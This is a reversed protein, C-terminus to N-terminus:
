GNKKELAQILEDTKELGRLTNSNMVDAVEELGKVVAPLEKELIQTMKEVNNSMTDMQEALNKISEETICILDRLTEQPVSMKADVFTDDKEKFHIHKM